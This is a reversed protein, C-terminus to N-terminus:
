LALFWVSACTVRFFRSKRRGSDAIVSVISVVSLVSVITEPLIARDVGESGRVNHRLWGFGIPGGTQPNSSFVDVPLFTGWIYFGTLQTLRVYAVWVPLVAIATLHQRTSCSCSSSTVQTDSLRDMEPKLYYEIGAIAGPLMLGRILLITLVVYPLTATAWVVKGSSSICRLVHKTNLIM